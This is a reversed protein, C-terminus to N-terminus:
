IGAARADKGSVSRWRAQASKRMFRRPDRVASMLNDKMAMLAQIQSTGEYIPFVMADRLLKEAGYETMYGNGGHIQMCRRAMEVAKEAALYKLLPTTRRAHGRHKKSERTASIEDEAIGARVSLDLMQGVQEHYGSYMALARLGMIDTEMEDLYDAIMEHRDITKGMSRREAAYARAMRYAAECLGIGEFGVSVRAANMLQLMYRFGEGRQGVLHAPTREFSIAVTASGHHGLKEEVRDLTTLRVRQGNEDERYTPVLFFSLGDLGPTPSGPDSPETRAIVFHYKGHGSTIFIKQGTIFWNGDADQEGRTRLAAMDSGADPETIDMAGWAQGSAIEAIEDAFRTSLIRGTAPEFETTGELISYMLMGVAIGGFFGNHTMVSVDARALLENALYFVLMPVNMGGLERPLCMAHVDLERLKRMIAEHEQSVSVEGDVLQVGQEDIRAVHPAIEEAAFAGLMELIDRYFEVADDVDRFGDEDAGLRGREALEVLTSWDLGKEIYYLFDANDKYFNAM